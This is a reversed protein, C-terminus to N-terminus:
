HSGSSCMNLVENGLKRHNTKWAFGGCFYSDALHSGPSGNTRGGSERSNIGVRKSQTVQREHNNRQCIDQSTSSDLPFLLLASFQHRPVWGESYIELPRQVVSPCRLGQWGSGSSLAQRNQQRCKEAWRRGGYVWCM